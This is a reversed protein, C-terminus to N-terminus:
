ADHSRRTMTLVRADAPGRRRFGLLHFVQPALFRAVRRDVLFSDDREPHRRVGPLWHLFRELRWRRMRASLRLWAEAVPRVVFFGDDGQDQYLPMLLLGSEPAHVAGHRDVAVAQGAEVEQFSAYGPAMQFGDRPTIAHRYRVEVVQPLGLSEAALRTRAEEVEPRVGVELLGAAELALWVAGAAREPAAPDRHQGAEFGATVVGQGALWHALTGPLEEELGLVLPAQLRLAFRRNPLTDELVIFAPGGGSTTHLDLLFVPQGRRRAPAMAARIERDLDAMQLEDPTLADGGDRVREVHPRFWIRNLDHALYRQEAELAALNGALGIVEGALEGCGPLRTFVRRLGEVGAPENGHLSGVVILTPGPREGVLRGIRRTLPRRLEADRSPATAPPSSVTMEAREPVDGPARSPPGPLLGRGAALRTPRGPSRGM